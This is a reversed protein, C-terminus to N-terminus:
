CRGLARAVEAGHPSLRWANPRGAGGCVKVLLGAAHLRALLASVQGPHTVGIGAAVGQNSAAPHEAVYRLCSRMRHASAHRLMSPLEVSVATATVSREHLHERVRDEGKRGASAAATPGLYPMIVIEALQSLLAIFPPAEGSLLRKRLMGFVSAITAASMAPPPQRELSLEARARDVFSGIRALVRTRAELAPPPAAVSELLCARASVPESDLFVLLAELGGLVGESWRAHREFAEGISVTARELMEDLLAVFCDDVSDFLEAFTARSVQARGAVAAVTAGRLGREAVVHGVADLVRARQSDLALQRASGCARGGM